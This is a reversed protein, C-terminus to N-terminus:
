SHGDPDGYILLLVVAILALAGLIYVLWEM